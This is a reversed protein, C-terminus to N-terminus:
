KKDTRTKKLEALEASLKALESKLSAIERSSAAIKEGAERTTKNLMMHLFEVNSQLCSTRRDIQKEVTCIEIGRVDQALAPTCSLMLAFAVFLRREVM